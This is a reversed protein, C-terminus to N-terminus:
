NAMWYGSDQSNFTKPKYKYTEWMNVQLVPKPTYFTINANRVKQPIKRQFPFKTGSDNIKQANIVM